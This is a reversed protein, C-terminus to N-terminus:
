AIKKEYHRVGYSRIKALSKKNKFRYVTENDHCEDISVRYQIHNENIFISIQRYNDFTNVEEIEKDKNGCEELSKIIFNKVKDLSHLYENTDVWDEDFNGNQLGKVARYGIEYASRCMDPINHRCVINGIISTYAPNVRLITVGNEVSHKFLSQFVLNRNWKSNRFGKCNSDFDLDEVAIYKCKYFVSLDSIHKAIEQIEHKRKNTLYINGESNSSQNLEKQVETITSWEMVYAKLINRIHSNQDVDFITIGIYDPNLDMSMIRNALLNHNKPVTLIKQNYTISIYDDGITYTIPIQKADQKKKLQNLINCRKDFVKFVFVVKGKVVFELTRKDKIRVRRNGFRKADGVLYLPMLRLKKFEKKSLTHKSTKILNKREGFVLKHGAPEGKNDVNHRKYIEYAKKYAYRILISDMLEINNYGKIHENADHSTIKPNDVFLNYFIHVLSTFQKRLKELLEKDGFIIKYAFKLTIMFSYKHSKKKRRNKTQKINKTKTKTKKM